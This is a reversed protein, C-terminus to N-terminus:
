QAAVFLRRPASLDVRQVLSKMASRQRHDGGGAIRRNPRAKRRIDGAKDLDLRAVELREFGRDVPLRGTDDHLRHLTLAANVKVWGVVRRLHALQAVLVPERQDEIFDPGAAAPGPPPEPILM